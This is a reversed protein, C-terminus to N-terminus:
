RQRAHPGDPQRLHQWDRRRGLPRQRQWHRHAGGSVTGGVSIQGGTFAVTGDYVKTAALTVTRPVVSLSESATTDYVITYGAQPTLGSGILAYTGVNDPTTAPTWAVSGTAYTSLNAATIVAGNLFYTTTGTLTSPDDGYTLSFIPARVVLKGAGPNADFIRYVSGPALVVTYNPSSTSLTGQGVAYVGPAQVVTTASGDFTLAGTITTTTQNNKLGSFVYNAENTSYTAKDLATGANASNNKLTLTVLAKNVTLTGNVYTVNYNGTSSGAVGSVGTVSLASPIIDYAGANAGAAAGSSSVTFAGLEDKLLVGNVSKFGVIGAPIVEDYASINAFQSVTYADGYTKSDSDTTITLPRKSILLRLPANTGPQTTGSAATFQLGHTSSVPYAYGTTPSAQEGALTGLSARTGVSLGSLITAWDLKITYGTGSPVVISNTAVEWGANSANKQLRTDVLNLL